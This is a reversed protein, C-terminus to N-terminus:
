LKVVTRSFRLDVSKPTRGQLKLRQLIQTLLEMQEAIERDASLWVTTKALRLEITESRLYIAKTKLGKESVLDLTQLYGAIGQGDIALKVGVAGEFDESLEIVPLDEGAAQRFLLGEQDVLFQVKNKDVITALPKRVSVRILLRDPLEKKISVASVTPFSDKIDQEVRGTDLFFISRALVGESIRQRVLAEDALQEFEFELAKVQFIDTRLFLFISLASLVVILITSLPRYPIVLQRPGVPIFVRPSRRLAQLSRRPFLRIM